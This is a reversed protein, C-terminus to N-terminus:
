SNGRGRISQCPRLFWYWPTLLSHGEAACWEIDDPVYSAAQAGMPVTATLIAAAVIARSTM